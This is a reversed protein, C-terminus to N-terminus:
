FRGKAWAWVAKGWSKADKREKNREKYGRQSQTGRGKRQRGQDPMATTRKPHFEKLPLSREPKEDTRIQKGLGGGRGGGLSPELWTGRGEM